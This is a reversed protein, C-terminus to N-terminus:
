RLSTSARRLAEPDGRYTADIYRDVVERVGRLDQMEDRM